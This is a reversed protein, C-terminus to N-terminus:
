AAMASQDYSGYTLEESDSRALGIVQHGSTQLTHAIASGIYDMASTLLVKM